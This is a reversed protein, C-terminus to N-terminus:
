RLRTKGSSRLSFPIDQRRRNLAFVKLCIDDYEGFSTEPRIEEWSLDVKEDDSWVEHFCESVLREFFASKDADDPDEFSNVVAQYRVSSLARFRVLISAERVEQRKAEIRADIDTYDPELKQQGIMSDRDGILQAGMADRETQLEDLDSLLGLDLCISTDVTGLAGDKVQRDKLKARLAALEAM